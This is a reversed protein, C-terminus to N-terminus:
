EVLYGKGRIYIYDKPSRFACFYERVPPFCSTDLIVRIPLSPVTNKRSYIVCHRASISDCGVMGGFPRQCAFARWEAETCGESRTEESLSLWRCGRIVGTKRALQAVGVAATTGGGGYDGRVGVFDRRKGRWPLGWM